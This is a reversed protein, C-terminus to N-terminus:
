GLGGSPEFAGWRWWDGVRSGTAALVCFSGPGCQLRGVLAVCWM